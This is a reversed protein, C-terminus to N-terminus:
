RAALYAVWGLVIGLSVCFALSRFPPVYLTLIPVLESKFCLLRRTSRRLCVLLTTFLFRRWRLHDSYIKMMEAIGM